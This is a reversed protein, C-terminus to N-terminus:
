GGAPQFTVATFTNIQPFADVVIEYPAGDLELLVTNRKKTNHEGFTVPGKVDFDIPSCETDVIDVVDLGIGRHEYYLRMVAVTERDQQLM